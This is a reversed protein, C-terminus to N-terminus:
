KEGCLINSPQPGRGRPRRVYEPPFRRRRHTPATLTQGERAHEPGPNKGGRESDRYNQQSNPPPGRGRPYRGYRNPDGASDGVQVAAACRGRVNAADAGEEGEVDSEATQGGGGSGLSKRPNKKIATQHAFVVEKTDNRPIFGYENCQLM